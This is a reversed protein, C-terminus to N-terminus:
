PVPRKAVSVTFGPEPPPTVSDDSAMLGALTVPPVDECPVTVKLPAAGPPPVTTLRDLLLVAAAVTGALTVTGAPEVLADKVTVVNETVAVVAAVMVPVWPVTVLVAARVTVGDVDCSGAGVSRLGAWVAVTASGTVSSQLSTVPATDYMMWISSELVNEM